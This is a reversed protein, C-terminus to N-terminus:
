GEGVLGAPMGYRRHMRFFLAYRSVPGRRGEKARMKNYRRILAPVRGGPFVFAIGSTTNFKPLRFLRMFMANGAAATLSLGNDRIAVEGCGCLLDSLGVTGRVADRGTIRFLSAVSGIRAELLAREVDGSPGADEMYAQVATRGDARKVDCLSLDMVAHMEIESEFILTGSKDKIGFMEGVRGVTGKDLLKLLKDNLEM